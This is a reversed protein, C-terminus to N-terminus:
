DDTSHFGRIVAAPPMPKFHKAAEAIVRKVEEKDRVSEMMFKFSSVLRVALDGVDGSTTSLMCDVAISGDLSGIYVHAQHREGPKFGISVVARADMTEMYFIETQGCLIGLKRQLKSKYLRLEDESMWCVDLFAPPYHIEAATRLSKVMDALTEKFFQATRPYRAPRSDASDSDNQDWAIPSLFVVGVDGNSLIMAKGSESTRASMVGPDKMQFKAFGVDVPETNELLVPNKSGIPMAAVTEAKPSDVIKKIAAYRQAGRELFFLFALLVPLCITWVIARVLPKNM